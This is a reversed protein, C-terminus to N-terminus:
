VRQGTGIKFWSRFCHFKWVIPMVEPSFDTTHLTSISNIWTGLLMQVWSVLSRPTSLPITGSVACIDNTVTPLVTLFQRPTTFHCPLSSRYIPVYRTSQKFTCLLWKNLTQTFLYLFLLTKRNVVHLWTRTISTYSWESNVESNSPPSHKVERGLRKVGACPGRYGNLLLSCPGWFGTQVNQPLSFDRERLTSLIKIASVFQSFYNSRKGRLPVTINSFPFPQFIERTTFVCSSKILWLLLCKPRYTIKVFLDTLRNHQVATRSRHTSRHCRCNGWKKKWNKPPDDGSQKIWQNISTYNQHLV